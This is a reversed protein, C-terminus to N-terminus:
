NKKLHNDYAEPFVTMLLDLNNLSFNSFTIETRSLAAFCISRTESKNIIKITQKRQHDETTYETYSRNTSTTKGRLGFLTYTHTLSLCLNSITLRIKPAHGLDEM